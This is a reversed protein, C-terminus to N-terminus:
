SAGWSLPTASGGPSVLWLMFGDPVDSNSMYHISYGAMPLPFRADEEEELEEGRLFQSAPDLVMGPDPMVADAFASEKEMTSAIRELATAIREVRGDM